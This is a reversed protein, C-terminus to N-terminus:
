EERGEPPHTWQGFLCSPRRGTGEILRERVEPPHTGQQIYVPREDEQGGVEDKEAKLHALGNDFLSM